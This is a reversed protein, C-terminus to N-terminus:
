DILGGEMVVYMKGVNILYNDLRFSEKLAALIFM